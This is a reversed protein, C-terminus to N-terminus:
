FLVFQMFKFTNLLFKEISGVWCMNLKSIKDVLGLFYGILYHEVVVRTTYEGFSFAIRSEINNKM